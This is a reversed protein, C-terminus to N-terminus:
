GERRSHVNAHPDDAADAASLSDADPPHAAPPHDAPLPELEDPTFYLYRGYWEHLDAAPDDALVVAVHTGGDVDGLVATVRAVQGAYFLDQADARRNPRLRVLSGGRVDVGGVRVCDTAPDVAADAAPDWWPPDDGQAPRGGRAAATGRAPATGRSPAGPTEPDTPTTWTPFDGHVGGSPARAALSPADGGDPETAFPRFVGADARPDRLIGHLRGLDAATLGDCRDIIAAAHPDTARAVAKEEDTLTMVRLTLIEDIETSDFLAGASEPAVAPHDYLIIPAALMVDTDDEAGGLVPWCRRQTCRTAADRAWEPPDIMSVFSAGDAALVLHASLLSRASAADRDVARGPTVNRVAVTLRLGVGGNPTAEGDARVALTLEATLPERRRVVRGFPRGDPDHLPEVEEGGAVEIRREHTFGDVLPYPGFLLEREMAEDWRLWRQGAMALEPVPTYGDAGTAQEVGRVQLQLFRLCVRVTGPASGIPPPALLCQVSLDAEEGVGAASAGPPGLVGFQWRVQNKASTSRYPYLLYGEYLVADAVARTRDLSTDGTM